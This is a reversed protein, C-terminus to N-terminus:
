KWWLGTIRYWHQGDASEVDITGPGSIKLVKFRTGQHDIWQGVVPKAPVTIKRYKIGPNKGTGPAQYDNWPGTAGLKRAKKEQTDTLFEGTARWYLMAVDNIKPKYGGGALWGRLGSRADADSTTIIDVIAQAPDM